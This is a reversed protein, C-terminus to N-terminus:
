SGAGPASAPAGGAVAVGLARLLRAQALYEDTKAQVADTQARLLGVRADTLDVSTALGADFRGQALRLNEEGSKVTLATLAIRERADLLAIWATRAELWAAQELKAYQARAGRMAAVAEEITALNRFGDFPTWRVAPGVQVSWPMPFGTASTAGYGLSLSLSPYLESVRADVLASAARERALAASLIPQLERTATWAADFTAPLAPTGTAVPEWTVVEALGVASALTARATEVADRTTVEALKATGLDVEAKTVDYPIRTAVGVRVEEKVQDLHEQFQRVAERATALLDTQKVLEVYASRVGFAVDVEAAREDRQAALWEEAAQRVVASTRGFDFLLWSVDFGHSTFRNSSGGTRGGSETATAAADISVQPLRDAEAQTIRSAAAETAHRAALVAPHVDLAVRVLDRLAVPGSKPLRVEAVTPTREGPVKSAPDQASRARAVMGGCGSAALAALAVIATSRRRAGANM